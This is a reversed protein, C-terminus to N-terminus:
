VHDVPRYACRGFRTHPLRPPAFCFTPVRAPALVRWYVSPVIGSIVPARILSMANRNTSHTRALGMRNRMQTTRITRRPRNQFTEYEVLMTQRLQREAMESTPM